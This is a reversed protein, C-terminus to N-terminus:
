KLISLRTQYNYDELSPQRLLLMEHFFNVIDAVASAETVGLDAKAFVLNQLTYESVILKEDLEFWSEYDDHADFDADREKKYEIYRTVIPLLDQKPNEYAWIEEIEQPRVLKGEYKPDV